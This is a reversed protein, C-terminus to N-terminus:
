RKFSLHLPVSTILSLFTFSSTLSIRQLACISYRNFIHWHDRKVPSFLNSFTFSLASSIALILILHFDIVSDLFWHMMFEFQSLTPPPVTQMLQCHRNCDRWHEVSTGWLPFLQRAAAMVVQVQPLHAPRHVWPPLHNCNRTVQMSRQSIDRLQHNLITTTAKQTEVRKRWKCWVLTFTLWWRQGNVINKM